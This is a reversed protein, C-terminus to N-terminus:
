KVTPLIEPKQPPFTSVSHQKVMQETDQSIETKNMCLSETQHLDTPHLSVNGAQSRCYM